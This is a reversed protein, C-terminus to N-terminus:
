WFGIGFKQASSQLFDFVENNDKYAQEVDSNAGKNAVILHDCHISAPVKTKKINTSLFQLIAALILFIFSVKLLLM